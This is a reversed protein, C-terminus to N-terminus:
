VLETSLNQLNKTGIVPGPSKGWTEMPMVHQKTKKLKVSLKICCIECASLFTPM